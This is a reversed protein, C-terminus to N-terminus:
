SWNKKKKESSHNLSSIYHVNVHFEGLMIQSQMLTSNIELNYLIFTCKKDFISQVRINKYQHSHFIENKLTQLSTTRVKM